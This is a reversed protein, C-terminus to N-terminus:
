RECDPVAVLITSFWAVVTATAGGSSCPIEGTGSTSEANFRQGGFGGGSAVDPLWMSRIGNDHSHM